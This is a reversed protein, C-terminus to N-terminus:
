EGVPERESGESSKQRAEYIEGTKRVLVAVREKGYKEEIIGQLEDVSLEGSDLKDIYETCADDGILPCFINKFVDCPECEEKEKVEDAM